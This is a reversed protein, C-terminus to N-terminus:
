RRRPSRLRRYPRASEAGQSERQSSPRLNHSIGKTQYWRDKMPKPWIWLKELYDVRNYGQVNFSIQYVEELRPVLVDWLHRGGHESKSVYEEFDKETLRFDTM